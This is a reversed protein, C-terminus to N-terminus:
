SPVFRMGILMLDYKRELHTIHFLDMIFHIWYFYPIETLTIDIDLGWELLLGLGLLKGLLTISTIIVVRM